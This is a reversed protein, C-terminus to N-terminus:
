DKEKKRKGILWALAIIILLTGGIYPFFENLNEMLTPQSESPPTPAPVAPEPAAPPTVPKQPAGPQEKAAPTKADPAKADPAATSPKQNKEEQLKKMAEAVPNTGTKDDALPAHAAESAATAAAKQEIKIKERLAGLDKKLSQVLPAYSTNKLKAVKDMVAEAETINKDAIYRILIMILDGEEKLTPIDLAALEAREKKIAVTIDQLGKVDYKSFDHWKVKEKTQREVTGKYEREEEEIARRAAAAENSALQKLGDARRQLLIPADKIMTTVQAEYRNLYEQAEPIAKLFYSSAGRGARLKEFARLAELYRTDKVEAAKEQMAIFQRCAEINYSDRKVSEADLWIGEMKVQGSLVKSKEEAFAAIIKGVEASEPTGPHKAVFTRLRDQITSEYYSADKLNPTPLLKGLGSELFETESPSQKKVSAIDSKLVTKRDKIKPTLKYELEVSDPADRLVKGEIKGGSKLVIAATEGPIFGIDAQAVALRGAFVCFIISVVLRLVTLSKM